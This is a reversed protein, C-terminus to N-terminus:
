PGIYVVSGIVATEAHAAAALQQWVAELPLERATFDLKQDPDIRRDLFIAVGYTQSLRDLGDRLARDQWAVYEVNERLQRTFAAGTKWAPQQAVAVSGALLGAALVGWRTRNHSAHRIARM